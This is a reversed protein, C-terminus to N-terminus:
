YYTLWEKAVKSWRWESAKIRAAMSFKDALLDNSALLDLYEAMQIVVAEESIPKILYGNLAHDILLQPGGWDICIAPLGMAMAEQVVIGNSEGISPLVLGRYQHFQNFVEAQRQWKIFNVRHALGLKSVLRKCRESEPGDGIIDLTIPLTTKVLSKIILDTGKFKVLRGVHIFNVNIGKHLVRMRDLLGDDVGCDITKKLIAPKCGAQILSQVTRKGGAVFITNAHSLGKFFLAHIKQLPCHLVRRCFEYITEKHRFSTPYYVNGNMPGFVNMHHQSIFRPLVPSNPGIQHIIVSHGFLGLSKAIKEALVVAHKLFFYNNIHSSRTLKWLMLMLWSDKIFHIDKYENWHKVAVQNREHTIMMTNFHIKKYYQFIQRAKVSEGGMHEAVNPAVLIILQDTRM